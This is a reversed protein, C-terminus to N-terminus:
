TVCGGVSPNTIPCAISKYSNFSRKKLTRFFDKLMV